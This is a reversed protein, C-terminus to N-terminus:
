KKEQQDQREMEQATRVIIYLGLAFGVAVGVFLLWPSTDWKKDAWYGLYAGLFQAAAFELGLTTIAIHEKKSFPGPTM